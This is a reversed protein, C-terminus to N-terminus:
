RSNRKSAVATKPNKILALYIKDREDQKSLLSV